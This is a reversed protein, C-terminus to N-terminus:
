QIKEKRKEATKETIRRNKVNKIEGRKRREADSKRRRKRGRKVRKDIM